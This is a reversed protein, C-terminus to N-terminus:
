CGSLVALFHLTEPVVARSTTIQMEMLAWSVSTLRTIPFNQGISCTYGWFVTGM